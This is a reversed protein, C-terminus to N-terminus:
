KQGYYANKGHKRLYHKDLLPQQIQQLSPNLRLSHYNMFATQELVAANHVAEAPDRGWAFPGHSRVLVAPVEAPDRGAFTEAIVNGTEREYDGAIEEPTMARTCPVAGYFDDAQTTGYPVVEVGAQAFATAWRSHTHVIGGCDPFATYLVLHTPTDSSPRWKGEVTNGAMDVVVMDALTMTEYPVGSPKIVILGRDRDIGSVNGWTFTVLDLKPLCLNAQLVQEKLEELM